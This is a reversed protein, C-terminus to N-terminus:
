HRAGEVMQYWRKRYGLFLGLPIGVACAIALAAFVRSLTLAVDAVMRDRFIGAVARAVSWPAPLVISDVLGFVAVAAWIALLLAMPALVRTPKRLPRALRQM